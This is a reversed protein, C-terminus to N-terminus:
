LLCSIEQRVDFMLVHHGCTSTQPRNSDPTGVERCISEFM